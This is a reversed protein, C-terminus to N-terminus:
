KSPKENRRIQRLKRKNGIWVEFDHLIEPLWLGTEGVAASSTELISAIDHSLVRLRRIDYAVLALGFVASLGGGGLGLMALWFELSDTTLYKTNDSQNALDLKFALSFFILGMIVFTVGLVFCCMGFDNRDRYHNEKRHLEQALLTREQPNLDKLIPAGCRLCEKTKPVKNHCSLCYVSKKLFLLLFLRKLTKMLSFFWLLFRRKQTKVWSFFRQLKRPKKGTGDPM